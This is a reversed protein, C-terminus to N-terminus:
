PCRSFIREKQLLFWTWLIGRKQPPTKPPPPPTGIKNKHARPNKQDKKRSSAASVAQFIARARLGVDVVEDWSGVRM